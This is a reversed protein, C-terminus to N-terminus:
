LYLNTLLVMSVVNMETQPGTQWPWSPRSELMTYKESWETWDTGASAMHMTIDVTSHLYADGQKVKIGARTKREVVLSKPKNTSSFPQM